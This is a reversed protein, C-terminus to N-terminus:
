TYYPVWWSCTVTCNAQGDCTEPPSQVRGDGCYPGIQCAKTCTGSGYPSVENRAGLDCQEPGSVTGDGCYGAYQCTPTCGGYSGDNVGDDCQEGPDVFGNGCKYRCHGDCTGSASGNDKGQDCQEGADLQGNGCTNLPIWGSCDAKCSGPLGTNLGDDCKEGFQSDVSKDGCYPAPRCQNTCLGSGYALSSNISGQDCAEPPNQLAGDGCYGALVCGKSCTGYSGDNKGDDCQETGQKVGDGCYPGQTCNANCGGYGGVNKTLGLDCQEGVDLTGNGCKLRCATDCLSAPTGNNLGDDCEEPGNKRGDGCNPALQCQTTCIGPGYADDGVNNAGNDCAEGYAADVASDGCYHPLACGPGCASKSKDYLTTNNGDDCQEEPSQTVQDGCYAALTCDPNCTGHAGTNKEKGLDCAEGPVVIGDGCKNTCTSVAHVFGGLTLKYNSQVVHREAQFVAIEYMGGVVLNFKSAQTDDLTISGTVRAHIGGLDVAMVGNVFVWVDDDGSFALVEGGHYTFPYRLESTFSFNNGNLTARPNSPCQTCWTPPDAAQCPACSATSQWGLGNLPFFGGMTKYPEDAASDFLYTTTAGQRILTLATAVVANVPDDHYWSHFTETSTIQDRCTNSGRVSLFVPKGDSALQPDVLGTTIGTCGVGPVYLTNEFDQHGVPHADTATTNWYMFDRFLIPVELTAPADQTTVPCDWGEETKCDAGCGDGSRINGDDCQEQEFKFGDGCVATCAGNACKPDIACSPSCGDYPIVNGDDCQESGEITHDGCVTRRCAQGPVCIWGREVHCTPSCGDNPETGGDECEELGVLVGDGCRAARCAAGVVPCVWGTQLQCSGNCGDTDVTNGDDCTEAGTIKKDGCTTTNECVSKYTHDGTAVPTCTWGLEVTCSAGCGDGATTNTDDCTESRQYDINGDGCRAIPACPKGAAPCVFGSEVSCSSNCGDSPDTNGDDCFEGVELIANGCAVTAVATCTGGAAPCTYGPEVSTCDASCGDGASTNKDDCAETGSRVGDGCVMSSSCVQKPPVLAPNPTLCTCNPELHCNGDCCDGPKLNGDDCQESGNLVGDGCYQILTCKAGPTPCTYGAELQCSSSCGDSSATNHDDCSEATEVIGNGCVAPTTSPVCAQGPTPCAFNAEVATCDATCGDGSTKNHDDCAESGGIKGDGCVVNLTCPQGPTSCIYNPDVRCLGSCGDGPVSNNDDCSEGEEVVGNGCVPGTQCSTGSCVSADEIGGTGADPVVFGQGGTNQFSTQGGTSVNSGDAKVRPLGGCAVYAQISTLILFVTLKQM